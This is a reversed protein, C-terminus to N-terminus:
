GGAAPAVQESFNPAAADKASIQAPNDVDVPLPWSLGLGEDLPNFAIGAMGPKWEATFCYVYQTGGESVSQFANCVGAPVLVQTGPTLTVTVVTGYSSSQPRADLYAGYAEGSVCSVLKVMAEGHMGRLAGRKSETVNMQQWEGLGAFPGDAYASARYFERVAGRDDHVQKLTVVVLGDIPTEAVQMDTIDFTVAWDECSPSTRHIDTCGGCETHVPRTTTPV